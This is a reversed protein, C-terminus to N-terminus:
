EGVKTQTAIRARLAVCQLDQLQELVRAILSDHECNLVHILEIVNRATAMAETAIDNPDLQPKPSRKVLHIRAVNSDAMNAGTRASQNPSLSHRSVSARGTTTELPLSSAIDLYYQVTAAV